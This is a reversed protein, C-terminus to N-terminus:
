RCLRLVSNKRYTHEILKQQPLVNLVLFISLQNTNLDYLAANDGYFQFGVSAFDNSKSNLFDMPYRLDGGVGYTSIPNDLASRWQDRYIAGIRFSGEYAGSLAPNVNLPAAFFQSFHQDQALILQGFCLFGFIFIWHLSKSRLSM